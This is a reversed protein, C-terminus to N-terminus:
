IDWWLLIYINVSVDKLLQEFKKIQSPIYVKSRTIHNSPNSYRGVSVNVNYPIINDILMRPLKYFKGPDKKLLSITAKCPEM